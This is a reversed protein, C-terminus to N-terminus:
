MFPEFGIEICKQMALAKIEEPIDRCEQVAKYVGAAFIKDNGPIPVGYKKCYAIMKKKSGTQVFDIFAADREKSFSSM